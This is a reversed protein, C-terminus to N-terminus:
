GGVAPAAHLFLSRHELARAGKRTVEQGTPAYGTPPSLCSSPKPSASSTCRPPCQRKHFSLFCSHPPARCGNSEKNAGMWRAKANGGHPAATRGSGPTGPGDEQQNASQDHSCAGCRRGRAVRVHTNKPPLCKIATGSRGKRV